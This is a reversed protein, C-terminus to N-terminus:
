LNPSQIWSLPELSGLNCEKISLFIFTQLILTDLIGSKPIKLGVDKQLDKEAIHYLYM